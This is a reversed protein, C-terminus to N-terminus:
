FTTMIIPTNYLLCDLNCLHIKVWGPKFSSDNWIGGLSLNVVLVFLSNHIRFPSTTLPMYSSMKWTAQSSVM